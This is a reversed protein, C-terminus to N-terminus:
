TGWLRAAGSPRLYLYLFVPVGIFALLVGLPIEAPPLLSRCLTDALPVLTVGILGSAVASRRVDPGVARRAVHPVILGVFGVVGSLSVAAATLLSASGLVLWQTRALDVGVAQAALAGLRMANLAPVSLIALSMGAALYPLTAAWEVWGRNAVSGALWSLITAADQRGLGTLVLAVIASFFASLSVGALILREPDIGGRRQALLAVMLATALGAAFGLAPVLSAALGLAVGVAIAAAAGASVGSLFPDVLPNRLLGQLLFGSVALALGVTAAIVARPMRLSWVIAAADGGARPHVLASLVEHAPLPSGGVFLAVLLAALATPVLILFPL